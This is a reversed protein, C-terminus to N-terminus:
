AIAAGAKAIAGIVTAHAKTMTAPTCNAVMAALDDALVAGAAPASPTYTTGMAQALTTLVFGLKADLGLLVYLASQDRAPAQLSATAQAVLEPLSSQRVLSLVGNVAQQVNMQSM